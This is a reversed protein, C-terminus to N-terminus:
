SPMRIEGVISHFEANLQTYKEREGKGKETDRLFRMMQIARRRIWAGVKNNLNSSVSDNTNSTKEANQIPSPKPFSM